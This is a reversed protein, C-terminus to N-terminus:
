IKREILPNRALINRYMRKHSNKFFSLLFYIPLAIYFIPRIIILSDGRVTMMIANAFIMVCCFIDPRESVTNKDILSFVHGFVIGWFFLMISGSWGFNRFADACLSFGPGYGMNLLKMLWDSGASYQLAPHIEWFGLNPILSYLAYLYSKGDWFAIIDPFIEMVKALPFMSGGMEVIADVFLNEKGFSDMFAVFYDILNRNNVVRLQGVISLFSILLYGIITLKIGSKKNITKVCYHYICIIVLVLKVASSRGGIYLDNIICVLMIMVVINRRIRFNKNAVLLCILSPFFYQSTFSFLKIVINTTAVITGDYGYIAAYGRDSVISISRITYYLFSPFSFLFLLKGTQNITKMNLEIEKEKFKYRPNFMESMTSNKKCGILAGIHFTILCILTFMQARVFQYKTLSWFLYSDDNVLNFVM